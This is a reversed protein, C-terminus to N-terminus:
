LGGGFVAQIVKPPLFYRSITRNPCEPSPAALDLSEVPWGLKKLKFVVASLRWSGTICEFEPHIFTEGKLMM